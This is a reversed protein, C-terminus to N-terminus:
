KLFLFYIGLILLLMVIITLIIRKWSRDNETMGWGILHIVNGLIEAIISEPM